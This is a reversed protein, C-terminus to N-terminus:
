QPTDAPTSRATCPGGPVKSAGGYVEVNRNTWAIVTGHPRPVHRSCNALSSVEKSTLVREWLNWQSLEGVLAQASDFRGGLTDQEQGLVLVGGPRINHWTALGQGEGTLRGGQFAQWAGGRQSWSVCIHHWNGRSVNLPLQAVKDDILLEMPTHLGQLLVLENPQEAVAYSFPTGLGLGTPRLWLCVTFARLEPVPQRLMGYMYNTRVPLSLKYGEPYSNESLGEELGAIRHHLSNIGQDIDERHRQSEHRLAKREKKLLDLKRELQGELDEMRPWSETGPGEGVRTGPAESLGGGGGTGRSGAAAAVDTQNHTFMPPGSDSELKEIREKLQVIVQELEDVARTSLRQAESSSRASDRFMLHSENERKGKLLVASRESSSRGEVGSECELLKGSLERITRQDTIIQDKQQLVTQRLEKATTRLYGWDEGAYPSPDDSQQQFSRPNCEGAPVPTCILRSIQRSGDGDPVNPVHFFTPAEGVGDPTESGHLAGLPGARAIPDEPFARPLGSDPSLSQNEAVPQQPATTASGTHVAAIICIVAGVFAVMGAALIIVIFM